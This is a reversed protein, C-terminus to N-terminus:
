YSSFTKSVMDVGVVIWTFDYVAFAIKCEVFKDDKKLWAVRLLTLEIVWNIVLQFFFATMHRIYIWVSVPKDTKVWIRCSLYIFNCDYRHCIWTTSASTVFNIKFCFSDFIFYFGADFITNPQSVHRHRLWVYFHGM